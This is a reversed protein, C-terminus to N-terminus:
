RESYNIWLQSFDIKPYNDEPTTQEPVSPSSESNEKPQMVFQELDDTNKITDFLHSLVGALTAAKVYKGDLIRSLRIKRIGTGFRFNKEDGDYKLEILKKCAEICRPSLALNKFHSGSSLLIDGKVLSINEAADDRIKKDYAAYDQRFCAAIIQCIENKESKGQVAKLLRAYFPKIKERAEQINEIPYYKFVLEHAAYFFNLYQENLLKTLIQTLFNKDKDSKALYALLTDQGVLEELANTVPYQAISDQQPVYVTDPLPLNNTHQSPILSLDNMKQEITKIVSDYANEHHLRIDALFANINELMDLNKYQYTNLFIEGDPLKKIEAKISQIRRSLNNNTANDKRNKTFRSFYQVLNNYLFVTYTATAPDYFPTYPQNVAEYYARLEQLNKKTEAKEDEPMQPLYSLGAELFLIEREIVTNQVTKSGKILRLKSDFLDTDESSPSSTLLPAKKSPSLTQLYQPVPIQKKLALSQIVLTQLRNILESTTEDQRKLRNAASTIREKHLALFITSINNLTKLYKNDINNPAELARYAITLLMSLWDVQMNKEQINKEKDPKESSHQNALGANYAQNYYEKLEEPVPFHKVMTERVTTSTFSKKSALKRFNCLTELQEQWYPFDKEELKKVIDARIKLLGEKKQQEEQSLSKAKPM